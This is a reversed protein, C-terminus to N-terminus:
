IHVVVVIDFVCCHVTNDKGFDYVNNGSAKKKTDCQKANIKLCYECFYAHLMSIFFLVTMIFQHM